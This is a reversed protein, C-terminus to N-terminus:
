TLTDMAWSEERKKVTSGEGDEKFGEGEFRCYIWSMWTNAVKKNVSNDLSHIRSARYTSYSAAHTHLLRMYWIFIYSERVDKQEMHPESLSAGIVNFQIM